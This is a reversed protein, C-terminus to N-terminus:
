EQISNNSLDEDSVEEVNGLEVYPMCYREDLQLIKVNKEALEIDRLQKALNVINEIAPKLAESLNKIIEKCTAAVESIYKFNPGIWASYLDWHNEKM